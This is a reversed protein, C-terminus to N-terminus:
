RVISRRILLHEKDKLKKKREEQIPDVFDRSRSAPSRSGSNTPPQASGPSDQSRQLVLQNRESEAQEKEKRRRERYELVRQNHDRVDQTSM